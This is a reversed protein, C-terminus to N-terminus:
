AVPARDGAGLLEEREAGVEAGCALVVVGDDVGVGGVGGVGGPEGGGSCDGDVRCVNGSVGSPAAFAAIAAMSGLEDRARASSVSAHPLTAERSGSGFPPYSFATLATSAAAWGTTEGLLSL